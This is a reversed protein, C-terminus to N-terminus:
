AIKNKFLSAPPRGFYNKFATTFHQVTNFGLKASVEKIGLKDKLLMKSAMNLRCSSFYDGISQNYVKKFLTKLKTTSMGAHKAMDDISPMEGVELINHTFFIDLETLRGIDDLLADSNKWAKMKSSVQEFYYDLLELIRTQAYFLYARHNPDLKQLAFFSERTEFDLPIITVNNSRLVHTHNLWFSLLKQPFYKELWEQKLILGLGLHKAGKQLSAKANYRSSFIQVNSYINSSVTFADDGMKIEMGDSNDIYDVRFTFIEPFSMTRFYTFQTHLTYNYLIAQLGESLNILRIYGNAINPPFNMTVGDFTGSFRDALDQLFQKYDIHDYVFIM